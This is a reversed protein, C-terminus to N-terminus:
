GKFILNWDPDLADENTVAKEVDVFSSEGERVKRGIVIFRADKFEKSCTSLTVFRDGYQVDVDTIIKTRAMVNNIFDDYREETFDVYNQYDFFETRNEHEPNASIVFYAFVKYEAEEYNTSFTFTPSKKYFDVSGYFGEKYKDLDGFMTNNLENHGYLIVNDSQKRSTITTRYDAFVTGAKNEERLFNHNLYYDNKMGEDYSAKVVPLDVKTNPVTIWGVTDPNQKLLEAASPLLPLEEDPEVPVVDSGTQGHANQADKIIQQNRWDKYFYDIIVVLCCILVVAAIATVLRSTVKKSKNEYDNNNYKRPRQVENLLAM